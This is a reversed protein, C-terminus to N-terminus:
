DLSHRFNWRTRWSAAAREAASDVRVGSRIERFATVIQQASGSIRQRGTPTVFSAPPPDFL